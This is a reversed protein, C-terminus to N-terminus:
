GNKDNYEAEVGIVGSLLKANNKILDLTRVDEIM